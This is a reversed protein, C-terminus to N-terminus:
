RSIPSFEALADRAVIWELGSNQWFDMILKLIAPPHPIVGGFV